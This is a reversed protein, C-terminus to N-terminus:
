KKNIKGLPSRVPSMKKEGGTGVKAPSRMFWGGRKKKPSVIDVCSATSAVDSIRERPLRRFSPSEPMGGSSSAVHSPNEKEHTSTTSAEKETTALLANYKALLSGHGLRLEESQHRLTGVENRLAGVEIELQKTKDQEVQLENNLQLHTAALDEKEKTHEERMRVMEEECEFVSEKLEECKDSETVQATAQNSSKLAMIEASLQAIRNEHWEKSDQLQENMMAVVEERIENESDALQQRLDDVTDNLIFNEERLKELEDSGARFGRKAFQSSKPPPKRAVSGARASNKSNSLAVTHNNSRLRKAQPNSSEITGKRKKPSIKKVIKALVKKTKKPSAKVKSEKAFLRRQRNYDTASITVSRATAAYSLVHQTEDYDDTSPNVNVIMSTRSAAPGTLHNMFMHTLKSERFPVVGGRKKGQHILMERLCRMLNMLSANILAAEKQHRTHSRTRKSRESGALDVIWIITSKRQRSSGGRSGASSRSCVSEDDTECESDVNADSQDRKKGGHIPSHAIELQCISHSRSSQSNINNSATHRNNKAMQALGLGQQVSDVAHRALGRVFIRGRRSERLKLNPPGDCPRRPVDSKGPLLDFIQENYIELYSMYMQMQRGSATKENLSKIRSLMHDLSRPIIGWDNGPAFDNREMKKKDAKSEFGSGMVTHTKGANTVGLTFVLASEGLADENDGQPFLGEVQPAVVNNYVDVQSADPGFVGSYSYEKVGRVEATPDVGGDGDDILSKSSLANKLSSSSSASLMALKSSGGRVVKAANSNLPPYTRITTPLCPETVSAASSSKDSIVEITNISGENGKKGNACVPPRVRLFVALRKDKDDAAGATSQIAPRKSGDNNINSQLSAGATAPRSPALPPRSPNSTSAPRAPPPPKSDMGKANDDFIAGLNKGFVGEAPSGDDDEDDHDDHHNGSLVSNIDIKSDDDDDDFRTVNMANGDDGDDEDHDEDMMAVEEDGSNGSGGSIGETRFESDLAVTESDDRKEEM